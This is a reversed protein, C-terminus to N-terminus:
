FSHCHQCVGRNDLRLLSSRANGSPGSAGGPWPVSGSNTAMKAGTGHAVHCAECGPYPALTFDAKHCGYCAGSDGVSSVLSQFTSWDFQATIHRYAFVADGSTTQAPNNNPDFHAEYRTHCQTCWYTVSAYTGTRVELSGFKNYAHQDWYSGSKGQNSDSITYQKTNLDPVDVSAHPTDTGNNFLVQGGGGSGKLLRYTPAGNPGSGGHPNHCSTCTLPTQLAGTNSSSSVSGYGWVTNSGGTIMHSSTVPVSSAGDGLDTNMKAQSFGGGLLPKNNSTDVGNQVDTTAGLGASHCTYCFASMDSGTTASKLLHSGPATHTRHCAACADTSLTFTGSHVGNDAYAAGPQSVVLLLGVGAALLLLALKIRRGHDDATSAM